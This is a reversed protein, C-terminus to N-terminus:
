TNTNFYQRVIDFQVPRSDKWKWKHFILEYPNLSEGFFSNRRTPHLNNNLTWNNQDQWDIGQYKRIMCDLSYGHRLICNSLGYESRVISTDFDPHDYFITGEDKLLQLGINDTLFFFGEVKPGYGGFDHHPLCVITTGVLKVKDNIKRIFINSWHEHTFYSPTIPGFVGSNMFFYYDYQMNNSSIYELAHKHGGFDFGINERKLVTINSREPFTIGNCDYGNIVIIYHINENYSSLEKDVFFKLHHDAHESKFYVYSIFIKPKPKICNMSLLKESLHLIVLKQQQQINNTNELKLNQSAVHDTLYSINNQLDKILREETLFPAEIVLEVVSPSEEIKDSESISEFTEEITLSITKVSPDNGLISDTIESEM